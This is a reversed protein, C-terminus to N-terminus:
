GSQGGCIGLVSFATKSGCLEARDSSLMGLMGPRLDRHNDQGLFSTLTTKAFTRQTSKTKGWCVDRKNRNREAAGCFGGIIGPFSRNPICEQVSRAAAALMWRVVPNMHWLPCLIIHELTQWERSTSDYLPILFFSANQM